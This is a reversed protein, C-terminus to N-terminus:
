RLNLTLTAPKGERLVTVQLSSADKLSDMLKQPNTMGALSTGNVATVIDNPKLGARMILAGIQGGASLRAGAIKGNEIVPEVHVQRALEAPDMQLQKQAASWDLAGHAMQPPVYTQPVPASPAGNARTGAALNQRNAEPMPPAHAEPGPLQLNELAGEHELAVHDTYVEVLKAGAAVEDGINYSSEQGHEDAIMAIGQKPDPLALTGRLTLKLLTAPAARALQALNVSQPNGFLHWKAISQAPAASVTAVPAVADSIPSAHPLLLWVTRVLIWLAFLAAGACVCLAAVRSLREHDTATLSNFM